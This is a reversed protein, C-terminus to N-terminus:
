AGGAAAGGDSSGPPDIFAVRGGQASYDLLMAVFVLAAAAYDSIQHTLDSVDCQSQSTSLADAFTRVPAGDGPGLDRLARWGLTLVQGTM